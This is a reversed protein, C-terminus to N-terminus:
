LDVTTMDKVTAVVGATVNAAKTHNTGMMLTLGTITSDVTLSTMAGGKTAQLKLSADVTGEPANTGLIAQWDKLKFKTLSATLDAEGAEMATSGLNLTLPSSLAAKLLPSTGQTGALSLSKVLATKQKANMEMEYDLGINLIPTTLKNATVSFDSIKLNGGLEVKDGAQSLVLRQTGNLATKNLDYGLPLAFLNLANRDIGSVVINLQGEMKEASFPGSVTVKGFSSGNRGFALELSKIETPSMDTHLTTNLGNLEALDGSAQSVNLVTEGQISKPRLAADMALTFKGKLDAHLATAPAAAGKLTKAQNLVAALTLAGSQDNGLQDLKLSVGTVDTVEKSGDKNFKTIHFAANNIAFNKLSIRAPKSTDAPKPAEPKTEMKKLAALIPDLNSTGDANQILQFTPAELTIEDVTPTDGFFSSLKYRLRVTDAKLIPETGTTTVSLGQIAVHSFPQITADTITVKAGLTESVKPLISNKLFGASTVYFYLSVVAVLGVAAAIGAYRLWKKWGSKNQQSM